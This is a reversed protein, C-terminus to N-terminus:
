LEEEEAKSIHEVTVNKICDKVMTEYDFSAEIEKVKDLHPHTVPDKLAFITCCDEYPRISIDYTGIKKAIDIIETKDSCALPRIMPLHSCEEIVQMSPLTQSAVQGISEGGSLVLDNHKFALGEAIRLMM